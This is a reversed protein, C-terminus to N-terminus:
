KASTSRASSPGNRECSADSPESQSNSRSVSARGRQDAAVETSRLLANGCSPTRASKLAGGPGPEASKPPIALSLRNTAAAIWFAVIVTSSFPVSAAAAVARIPPVVPPPGTSRVSVTSRGEQVQDGILPTPRHQEHSPHEVRRPSSQPARRENMQARACSRRDVPRAIGTPGHTPPLTLPRRRGRPPSGGERM